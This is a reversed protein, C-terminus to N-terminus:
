DLALYDPLTGSFRQCCVSLHQVFYYCENRGDSARKTKIIIIILIINNNCDCNISFYQVYYVYLGVYTCNTAVNYPLIALRQFLYSLKMIIM